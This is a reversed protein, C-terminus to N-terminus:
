RAYTFWRPRTPEREIGFVNDKVDKHLEDCESDIKVAHDRAESYTWAKDLQTRCGVSALAATAAIVVVLTLTRRSM